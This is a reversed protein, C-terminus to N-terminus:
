PRPAPGGPGRSVLLSSGPAPRPETLDVVLAPQARVTRDRGTRKAQYLALDARNVLAEADEGPVSQAIGASCTQGGPTRSRLRELLLLAESETCSPLLVAFEEGGWRALLDTTRLAGRWAVAAERLLRDGAQHGHRDNFSKFRDLDILAVSLPRQLRASRALEEALREDWARRNALGTLADHRAEAALSALLDARELAAAAEQAVLDLAELAPPGAGAGRWGVVLMAVAVGGRCVPQVALVAAGAAALDPGFTSVGGGPAGPTITVEPMDLGYAGTSAWRGEAVPELLYALDARTAAVAADCVAQRAAPGTATGRALATASRLAHEREALLDARQAAQEVLRQVALAVVVTVVAWFATRPFTTGGLASVAIALPVAASRVRPPAYLALWLVALLGLAASAARPGSGTAPLAPLVGLYALPPVVCWGTAARRWPALAWLAFLGATAGFAPLFWWPAVPTRPAMALFALLVAVAFPALLRWVRPQM